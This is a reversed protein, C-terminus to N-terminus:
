CYRGAARALAWLGLLALPLLVLQVWRPVVVPPVPAAVPATTAEGPEDTGTPFELRRRSEHAAGLSREDDGAARQQAGQEPPPGARWADAQSAKSENVHFYAGASSTDLWAGADQEDAVDDAPDAAARQQRQQGASRSRRRARVEDDDVALVGGAPMPMVGFIASSSNAAPTSTIVSPLWM